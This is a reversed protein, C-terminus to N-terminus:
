LITCRVRRASTAEVGERDRIERCCQMFMEFVNHCTMCSTEFFPCDWQDALARGEDMSVERSLHLDSKNGVLVQVDRGDGVAKMCVNVKLFFAGHKMDAIKDHFEMCKHFTACSTIDYLLVFAQGSFRGKRCRYKMREPCPEGVTDAVVCDSLLVIM